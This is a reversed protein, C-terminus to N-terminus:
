EEKSPKRRCKVDLIDEYCRIMAGKYENGYGSELAKEYTKQMGEFTPLSLGIRALLQTMSQIDKYAKEMTFGHDFRGELIEPILTKSAYSSGSAQMLVDGLKEPSLGLKVGLPMLECFSAACINLACNNIMKTLQGSGSPGMYLVQSGMMNLFPRVTEFVDEEGGVMISLTGAEAKAQHGSVPADLYHIGSAALRDALERAKLYSITSCDVIIREQPLHAALAGPGFLVAETAAEDPLCLFILDCGAADAPGAFVPCGLASFQARVEPRRAIITLDMGKKKLNRAMGGGMTGTGIFAAKM